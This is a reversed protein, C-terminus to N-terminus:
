MPEKEGAKAKAADCQAQTLELFGQGKCSNQGKCANTATKCATTGKCSNVGMCHVTAVEAASAPLALAGFILAATTAIAAGTVKGSESM